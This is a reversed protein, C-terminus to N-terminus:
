AVVHKGDEFLQHRAAHLKHQVLATSRRHKTMLVLGKHWDVRGTCVNGVGGEFGSRGEHNANKKIM